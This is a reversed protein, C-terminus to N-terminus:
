NLGEMPCMQRARKENLEDVPQGVVVGIFARTRTINLLTRAEISAAKHEVCAGIAQWPESLGVTCIAVESKARYRFQEGFM